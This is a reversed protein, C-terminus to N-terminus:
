GGAPLAAVGHAVGVTALLWSGPLRTFCRVTQDFHGHCSACMAHTSALQLCDIANPQRDHPVKTAIGEDSVSSLPKVPELREYITDTCDRPAPRLPSGVPFPLRRRAFRPTRRDYPGYVPSSLLAM